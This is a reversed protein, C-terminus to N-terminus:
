RRDTALFDMDVNALTILQKIARENGTQLLHPSSRRPCVKSFQL